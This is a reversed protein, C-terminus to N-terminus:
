QIDIFANRQAAIDTKLAKVQSTLLTTRNRAYRSWGGLCRHVVTHDRSRTGTVSKVKYARQQRALSRVKELLSTPHIAVQGPRKPRHHWAASM